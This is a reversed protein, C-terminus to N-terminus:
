SCGEGGWRGGEGIIERFGSVEYATQQRGWAVQGIISQTTITQIGKEGAPLIMFTVFCVCVFARKDKKIGRKQTETQPPILVVMVSSLCVSLSKDIHYPSGVPFSRHVSLSLSITSLSVTWPFVLRTILLFLLPSPPYRNEPHFLAFGSLPKTLLTTSNGNALLSDGVTARMFINISTSIYIYIYMYM